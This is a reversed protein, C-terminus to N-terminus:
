LLHLHNQAKLKDVILRVDQARARPLVLVADPTDVVILDRVGVASVLRGAASWLVNDHADAAVVHGHTVNGHDDAPQVEHLAAWHGVDSWTFTAPIVSVKQAREMVGYDISINQLTPFVDALAANDHAIRQVGDLMDPLHRQLEAEMTGATFFFMGTNWLYDGSDLYALARELNPKEIFSSVPWPRGARQSRDEPAEYRIYGFGTEPRTPPIGMTVISGARAAKDAAALCQHFAALDGIFHDSPFVGIVDDGFRQRAIVTALAIAPATNRPTPEVIFQDPALQPLAARLQEVLHPGCVVLVRSTPITPELRAVTHAIMPSDGWLTLSQKPRAHRSLPWFRTGSGGALIIAIM